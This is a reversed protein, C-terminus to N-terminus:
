CLAGNPVCAYHGWCFSCQNGSACGSTRCDVTGCAGEHDVGVSARSAECSNGYTHGDCGCVPLYLAPCIQTPVTCAGAADTRGCQQGSSYSCFMGSPCPGTGRTGCAIPPAAEIDLSVSITGSAGGDYRRVVAIYHGSTPAAHEICSGLTNADCDDNTSIATGTPSGTSAAHYLTLVTDVSGLPSGDATLHIIQGQEADFNWGLRRHASTFTGTVTQGGAIAGEHTVRTSASANAAADYVVEGSALSTDDPVGSACGAVLSLAFAISLLRTM